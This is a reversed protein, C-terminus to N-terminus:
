GQAKRHVDIALKIAGPQSGDLPGDAWDDMVAQAMVKNTEYRWKNKPIFAHERQPDEYHRSQRGGKGGKKRARRGSTVTGRM